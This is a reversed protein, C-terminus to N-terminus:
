NDPAFIRVLHELKCPYGTVPCKSNSQVYSYICKYCFVFGSVALATENCRTKRCLPCLSFIPVNNALNTLLNNKPYDPTPLKHLSQLSLGSQHWWDLFQLFYMTLTLSTKFLAATSAVIKLLFTKLSAVSFDLQLLSSWPAANSKILDEGELRTLCVKCLLLLPSHHRLSGLLYGVLFMLSSVELSTHIYPYITLFARKFKSAWKTQANNEAQYSSDYIKECKRRIYPYLVMCFLSRCIINSPLKISSPVDSVKTSSTYVRKLGYFNESFSAAHTKLFHLEVLFNVGLILEDSYQFCKQFLDPRTQALVKLVHQLAPTVLSALNDQALLEFVTPLQHSEPNQTINAGYGASM